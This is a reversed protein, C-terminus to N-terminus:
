SSDSPSMPSSRKTTIPHTPIPSFSLCFHRSFDLSFHSWPKSSRFPCPFFLLARRMASARYRMCAFIAILSFLLFIVYFFPTFTRLSIQTDDAAAYIMGYVRPPESRSVLSKSARGLDPIRGRRSVRPHPTTFHPWCWRGCPLSISAVFPMNYHQQV